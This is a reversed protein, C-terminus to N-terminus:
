IGLSIHVACLSVQGVQPWQRKPFKLGQVLPGQGPVIAVVTCIFPLHAAQLNFALGSREPEVRLRGRHVHIALASGAPHLHPLGSCETEVRM